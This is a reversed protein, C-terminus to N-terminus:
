RVRGRSYPEREGEQSSSNSSPKRQPPRAHLLPTHKRDISITNEKISKRSGRSQSSRRSDHSFDERSSFSGQSDEESEGHKLMAREMLTM